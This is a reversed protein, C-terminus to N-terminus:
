YPEYIFSSPEFIAENEKDYYNYIWFTLVMTEAFADDGQENKLLTDNIYFDIDIKGPTASKKIDIVYKKIESRLIDNDIRQRRVNGFPSYVWYESAWGDTYNPSANAGWSIGENHKDVTTINMLMTSSTRAIQINSFNVTYKGYSFKFPKSKLFESGSGPAATLTASGDDNFVVSPGSEFYEETIPIADTKQIILVSDKLSPWASEFYIYTSRERPEPNKSITLSIAGDNNGNLVDATVWQADSPINVDWITTAAVNVVVTSEVTPILFEREGDIKLEVGDQNIEFTSEENATKVLIMASRKPKGRNDSATIAISQKEDSPTGSVPNVTLWDASTEIIFDRNSQVTFSKEEGGVSFVDAVPTVDLLVLGTQVIEVVQQEDIGEASFTLTATRQKYSDANEKIRITIDTILASSDSRNPSVSLWNESSVSKWPTSSNISIVVERPKLAEFYYISDSVLTMNKVVKDTQSDIGYRDDCSFITSTIIILLAIIKLINRM